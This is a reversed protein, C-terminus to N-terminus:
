GNRPRRNVTVAVNLTGTKHQFNYSMGANVEFDFEFPANAVLAVGENVDLTKTVGDLTVQMNVVTSTPVTIQIVDTETFDSDSLVDDDLWNTDVAITASTEWRKAIPIDSLNM